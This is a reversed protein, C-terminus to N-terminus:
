FKLLERAEEEDPDTFQMTGEELAHQTKEVIDEWGRDAIWNAAVPVFRGNEAQWQETAKLADLAALLAELSPVPAAIRSFELRAKKRGSRVGQRPPFAALFEEFYVMQAPDNAEVDGTATLADANVIEIFGGALLGDLAAAHAMCGMRQIWKPDNPIRNGTRGALVLLVFFTLKEGDTLPQFTYSDLIKLHLKIWTPTKHTFSQYCQWNTLRIFNM